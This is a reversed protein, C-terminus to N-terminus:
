LSIDIGGIAGYNTKAANGHYNEMLALNGGLYVSVDQSINLRLGPALFISSSDSAPDVMDNTKSDSSYEGNIELIGDLQFKGKKSQYLSLVAALNYNFTSGLITNQAGMTSQTYILNSSLTLKDFKQTVILGAFPTWSGSGPQDGASFLKGTNDVVSTKGTPTNLGALIALSYKNKDLFKWLFFLNTDAIGSINGLSSIPTDTEPENQNAARLNTSKIYPLNIGINLNNTLGYNLMLYTIFYSDQSQATPKLVLQLDSLAHYTYYENRQSVGWTGKDSTDATSTTIPSGPGTSFNLTQPQSRAHLSSISCLSLSIILLIKKMM